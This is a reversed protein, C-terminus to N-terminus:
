IKPQSNRSWLVACDSALMGRNFAEAVLLSFPSPPTALEGFDLRRGHRGRMVHDLMNVASLGPESTRLTRAEAVIVASLNASMPHM